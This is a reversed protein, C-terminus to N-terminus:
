AADAAPWVKGSADATGTYYNNIFKLGTGATAILEATTDLSAVYNDNVFGSCDTASGTLFIGVAAGTSGTVDLRNFAISAYRITDATLTIFHGEDDTSAMVVLNGEVVLYDLDGQISIFAAPALALGSWRNNAVRLGEAANDTTSVTVISLFHLANSTDIFDNGDLDFYKATTLDFATVVNDLNAVFRSNKFACNDASVTVAAATSTTYTYTPRKNGTGIGIVQVGAKSLAITSASTLTETHGPLVLIVDGKNATAKTIAQAVTALPTDRSLGDNGAAGTGSHVFFYTGTTVPIQPGGGIVPVGFSTIGNPFNTLGM